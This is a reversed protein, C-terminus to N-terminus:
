ETFQFKYIKQELDSVVILNGANDFCIGEPNTIPVRWKKIVKYTLPDLKLVSQEEDSLAYLYDNHYTIGSIDSAIKLKVENIKVLDANLEFVWTPDKETIVIFCNKKYNYAICEYGLNMGGHYSVENQRVLTLSDASYVMIRRTREDTVYVQNNYLCIGEFDLGKNKATAFVKGTTDVKSLVGKDGVMFFYAGSADCVIDSPELLNTHTKKVPKLSNQANANM